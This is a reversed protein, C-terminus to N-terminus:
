SATRRRVAGACSQCSREAIIDLIIGFADDQRHVLGIAPGRRVHDALDLVRRDAMEPLLVELDAVRPREIGERGADQKHADARGGLLRLLQLAGGLFVDGADREAGGGRGIVQLLIDVAFVREVAHGLRGQAGDQGAEHALLVLDRWEEAGLRHVAHAGILRGPAQQALRLTRAAGEQLSM